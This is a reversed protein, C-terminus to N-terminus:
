MPESTEGVMQTNVVIPTRVKLGNVFNMWAAARKQQLLQETFSQGTAKWEQENPQQRSVVRFIFSNGQNALVRDLTSPLKAVAAAAETAEAFQGIGPIQRSARPFLGTTQVQLHNNSAVINFDAGAKIQKLAAQAADAALLEAHQRIYATRVKEKIQDFSPIHSPERAVLKALFPVSTDTIARV